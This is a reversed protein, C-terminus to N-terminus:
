HGDGGAGLDAEEDREPDTFEELEADPIRGFELQVSGAGLDAYSFRRESAAAPGKAAPGKAGSGEAPGLTVGDADAALVRGEVAGEGAAKVRVLRGRARRWHRPETLPRDVGPSSVELTYPTDGLANAADLAASVDRSVDAADDLSVGHDSDVVVRLLRRRGAVTVRVSELDMGAAAVVPEILGALKRDDVSGATSRLNGPMEVEEDADV